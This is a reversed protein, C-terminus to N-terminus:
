VPSDGTRDRVFTGWGPSADTYGQEKLLALARRATSRSVRFEEALQRQRERFQDGLEQLRKDEAISAQQLRDQEKRAQEQRDEELKRAHEQRDEEQKRAQDQREQEKDDVAVGGKDVPSGSDPM